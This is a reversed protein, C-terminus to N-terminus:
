EHKEVEMTMGTNKNYRLTMVSKPMNCSWTGCKMRLVPTRLWSTKDLEPLQYTGRKLMDRFWYWPLSIKRLLITRMDHKSPPDKEHETGVFETEDLVIFAKETMGYRTKARVFETIEDDSENFSSDRFTAYTFRRADVSPILYKGSDNKMIEMEKKWKQKSKRILDGDIMPPLSVPIIGDYVCEIMGRIDRPVHVLSVGGRSHPLTALEIVTKYLLFKSYVYESSGFDDHDDGFFIVHFTPNGTRHKREHRHLRGMRQILLDIPAIESFMEDFDVDLSQEIVQTAIVIASRPRNTDNKGFLTTVEHEIENRDEVTFRAHFQFVNVNSSEKLAHILEDHFAQARAVTNVVVCTCKGSSASAIVNRLILPVDNMADDEVRVSIIKERPSEEDGRASERIIRGDNMVITVLPYDSQGEVNDCTDVGTSAMVLERKKEVPLTASLLVVPINLIRGWELMRTLINTMYVDYAHVEDVIVVKEALGLLRLFGFKVYLASMLLQDITGVGRPSLFALRSPRFWSIATQLDDHSVHSITLDRPRPEHDNVLWAMGHILSTRKSADGGFRSLFDKTREFMQNSTACTPLAMYFGNLGLHKMLQTTIFHSTETKGDGTPAELIVLAVNSIRGSTSMDNFVRNVIHQIPFLTTFEPYVDHFQTVSDVDVIENFGLADICTNARALSETFYSSFSMTDKGRIEHFKFLADNSAIWDSLVIIAILFTGIINPYKFDRPRWEMPKFLSMLVNNIRERWPNWTIRELDDIPTQHGNFHGHHGEICHVVITIARKGWQFSERLLTDAWTGSMISHYFPVIDHRRFRLGIDKLQTVIADGGRVQFDPSCKGIDHLSAIYATWSRLVNVDINLMNAMKELVPRITSSRILAMAVCGVDVQHHILAHYPDTKGWLLLLDHRTM